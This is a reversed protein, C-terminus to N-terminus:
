PGYPNKKLESSHAPPPRPSSPSAHSPSPSASPAPASALPSPNTSPAASPPALPALSPAASPAAPVTPPRRSLWVYAGGAGLVVSVLTVGIALPALSRKPLGAVDGIDAEVGAVSAPSSRESPPAPDASKLTSLPIPPSPRAEPALRVTPPHSPPLGQALALATTGTGLTHRPSRPSLKELEEGLIAALRSHRYDLETGCIAEVQEAV